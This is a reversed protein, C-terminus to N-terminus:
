DALVAKWVAVQGGERLLQRAQPSPSARCLHWQFHPLDQMQWDGGWKCQHNVFIAAVEEFWGRRPEWRDRAHIVDVALGYGHWSRDNTPANTVTRRPPVVTRGRAYYRSQLEQSRYAEYVMAELGAATCDALAARVAAAFKPALHDLNRDPVLRDDSGASM